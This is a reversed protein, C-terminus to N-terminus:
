LQPRFRRHDITHLAVAQHDGDFAMLIINSGEKDGMTVECVREGVSARVYAHVCARVRMCECM